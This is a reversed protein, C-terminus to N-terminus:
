EGRRYGNRKGIENQGGIHRTERKDETVLQYQKEEKIIEFISPSGPPKSTRNNTTSDERDSYYIRGWYRPSEKYDLRKDKQVAM